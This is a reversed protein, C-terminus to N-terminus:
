FIEKAKKMQAVAGKIRDKVSDISIGLEDATEKLTMEMLYHMEVAERQKETLCSLIELIRSKNVVEQEVDVGSDFEMDCAEGDDNRAADATSELNPEENAKRMKALRDEGNMMVAVSWVADDMPENHSDEEVVSNFQTTGVHEMRLVAKHKENQYIAFGNEYVEMRCMYANSSILLKGTKRLQIPGPLDKGRTSPLMAKLERLTIKDNIKANNQAANNQNANNKKMAQGKQAEQAALVTVM